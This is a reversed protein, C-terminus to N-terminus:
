LGIRRGAREPRPLAAHAQALAAVRARVPERVPAARGVETDVHLFMQEATALPEDEGVRRLVHFVHLRKDDWGLVQTDVRVRDGAELQRLHSLHTEVTFYSGGAALYGADV